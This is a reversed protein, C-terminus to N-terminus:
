RSSIVSPSSFAGAAKIPRNAPCLKPLASTRIARQSDRNGSPRRCKQCCDSLPQASQSFCGTARYWGPCNSATRCSGCVNPLLSADQWVTWEHEHRPNAAEIYIFKARSKLVLKVIGKLAVDKHHPGRQNGWCVHYRLKESPVDSLVGNLVDFGAALHAAPDALDSGEVTCHFAMACGSVPEQWNRYKAAALHDEPNPM